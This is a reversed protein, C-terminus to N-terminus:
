KQCDSILGVSYYHSVCLPLLMLYCDDYVSLNFKKIVFYELALLGVSISSMLVLTLNSININKEVIIKSIVIWVLSAPFSNFPSSFILIYYSVLRNLVENTQLLHNYNSTLVCFLYLVLSIAFLIVNSFIKSLYFVITIGLILSMIFWSGSFTSSFLLSRMFRIIGIIMGDAFYDRVVFTYPALVIFWFIYLIFFLLITTFKSPIYKKINLMLSGIGIIPSFLSGFFLYLSPM